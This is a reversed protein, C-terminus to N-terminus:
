VQSSNGKLIHNAIPEAVVRARPDPNSMLFYLSFMPANRDNYLRKPGLVTPFLSGLRNTVFAEMKNLDVARATNPELEDLLSAQPNEKYWETLWEDTGLMRSLARRKSGDLAASDHTAQRYLGALSVLYWVDIAETKRIAELTKWEVGMGYPDLFMVARTRRWGPWNSAKQILTNADGNRVHIKKNPFEDKLNELARAHIAKREFFFHQDFPPVTEIAIRASGKKTEIKEKTSPEWLGAERPALKVTREGTGAFADIYWLEFTKGSLATTFAELYGKVMSLKLDTLSSGFYHEM